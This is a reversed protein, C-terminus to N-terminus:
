AGKGHNQSLHWAATARLGEVVSFPPQWGLIERIKRDDVQLSGLLRGAAASRGSLRAALRLGGTPAPFLRARRGLAEATRRILDPTSLDEGDRLLFTRNHAAPHELATRLAHALNGVYILSRANRIRSLPLPARRSCLSLLSRFNGKVGPGYVLPPRLVVVGMGSESQGAIEQLAQEAEWKTRGYDDEPAPVSDETFPRGEDTREGNVKISSLYILRRVGHSAAAEALRRTGEVNIRRYAALPDTETERMVHTRAALHIVSGVGDLAASWDTDPGIDGVEVTEIGEPPTWGEAQRVAARVDHGTAVLEPLLAAAVFGNAGTVLVRM